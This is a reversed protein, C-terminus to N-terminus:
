AGSVIRDATTPTAGEGQPHHSLSVPIDDDDVVAQAVEAVLDDTHQKTM